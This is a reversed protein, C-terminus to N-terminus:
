AQFSLTLPHHFVLYYYTHSNASLSRILNCSVVASTTQTHTHLKVYVVSLADELYLRWWAQDRCVTVASQGNMESRSCRPVVVTCYWAKYVALDLILWIVGRDTNNLRRHKSATRQADPLAVPRYVNVSSTNTHNDTQLSTCITQM